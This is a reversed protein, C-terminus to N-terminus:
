SNPLRAIARNPKIILIIDSNHDHKIMIALNNITLSLIMKNIPVHLKVWSLLAVMLTTHSTKSKSILFPLPPSGQEFPAVATHPAAPIPLNKPRDHQSPKKFSPNRYRGRRASFQQLNELALTVKYLDRLPDRTM